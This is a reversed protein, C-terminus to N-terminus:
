RHLGSDRDNSRDVGKSREVAAIVRQAELKPDAFTVALEKQGALLAVQMRFEETGRVILPRAGFRESALSLAFFTAGDTM